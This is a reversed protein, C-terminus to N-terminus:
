RTTVYIQPARYARNTALRGRCGGPAVAHRQQIRYLGRQMTSSRNFDIEGLGGALPNVLLSGSSKDEPKDLAFQHPDIASNQCTVDLLGASAGQEM